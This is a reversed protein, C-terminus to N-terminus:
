DSGTSSGRLIRVTDLNEEEPKSDEPDARKKGVSKVKGLVVTINDDSGNEKAWEVMKRAISQLKKRHKLHSAFFGSYDKLKDIILGDSCLLFSDGKKLDSSDSNEPFLDPKDIGGDIVKTVINRYQALIAVPLENNYKKLYDQIYSHDETIQKMNGDSFLYIRSDGLNAWAYKNNKILVCTLTTGMGKMVPNARVHDAIATQGIIYAKLLIDKLKEPNESQMLDHKLFEEISELVIKSAIEGGAIGGMGDAVALFFTGDGLKLSICNDENQKRIGIDTCTATKFVSSKTFLKKFLVM